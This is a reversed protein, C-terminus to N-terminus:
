LSVLDAAEDKNNDESNLVRILGNSALNDTNLLASKDYKIEAQSLTGALEAKSNGKLIINAQFADLDLNASANNFLKLDLSIASLKGFSRVESNDYVSLSRLDSVTIWVVLKEAKYSAIRLTGNQDQVLANEKYYRNYVKVQDTAGDSVYVEVNGYVEIKNIRTVDTVVTAVDKSVPAAYASSNICSVVGLLIAATLIITKM